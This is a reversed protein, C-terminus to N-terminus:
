CTEVIFGLLTCPFSGSAGASLWALPVNPAAGPAQAAMRNWEDFTCVALLEISNCRSWRRWLKGGLRAGLSLCGPCPISLTRLARAEGVMRAM